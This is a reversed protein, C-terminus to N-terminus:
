QALGQPTRSSFARLRESAPKSAVASPFKGVDRRTTVTKALSVALNGRTWVSVKHYEGLIECSQREDV